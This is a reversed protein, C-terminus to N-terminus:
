RGGRGEGDKGTSRSLRSGEIRNSHYAFDPRCAKYIDNDIANDRQHKPVAALGDCYAIVDAMKIGMESYVGEGRM